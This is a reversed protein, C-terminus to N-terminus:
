GYWYNVFLGVAAALVAGWLFLGVHEAQNMEVDENLENFTARRFIFYYLTIAMFVPMNLAVMVTAYRVFPIFFTFLCFIAFVISMINYNVGQDQNGEEAAEAAAVAILGRSVLPISLFLAASLSQPWDPVAWDFRLDIWQLRESIWRPIAILPESFPAVPWGFEESAFNLVGISFTIIGFVYGVFASGNGFFARKHSVKGM